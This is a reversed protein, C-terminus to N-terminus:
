DVFVAFYDKYSPLCAFYNPGSTYDNLDYNWKRFDVGGKRIVGCVYGKDQLYEYFDRTTWHTDATTYGYEWTLADIRNQELMRSFGELTFREWGEVDIKLFNIRDIGTEECYFDGTKVETLSIEKNLHAFDISLLSNVAPFDPFHSYRVSENRNSLGFNNVKVNLGNFRLTLQRNLESDLDFLHGSARYGSHSLIKSSYDGINAGVDFFVLNQFKFVIKQILEFEGNHSFDYSFGRARHIFDRALPSLFRQLWVVDATRLVLKSFQNFFLNFVLKLVRKPFKSSVEPTLPCM